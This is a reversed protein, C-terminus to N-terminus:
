SIQDRTGTTHSCPLGVGRSGGLACRQRQSRRETRAPESPILPPHASSGDQVGQGNEGERAGAVLLLRLARRVVVPRRRPVLLFLLLLLVLGVFLRLLADHGRGLRTLLRREAHPAPRLVAHGGALGGPPKELLAAVVFPQDVRLDSPAHRDGDLGPDA